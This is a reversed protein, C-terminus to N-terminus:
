DVRPKEATVLALQTPLPIMKPNQFGVDGLWSAVEIGDRDGAGPDFAVMVYMNELTDLRARESSHDIRMYDQVIVMGGPLMADYAVKFLRRSDAEPKILVVGSILAVDYVQELPTDLFDSELLTIQSQLNHEEVLPGAISLPEKQDV